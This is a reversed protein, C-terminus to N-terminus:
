KKGLTLARMSEELANTMPCCERACDALRSSCARPVPAPRVKEQVPEIDVVKVVAKGELVRKIKEADWMPPRGSASQSSSSTNSGSFAQWFAGGLRQFLTQSAMAALMAQQPTPANANNNSSSYPLSTSGMKPSAPPSPYAAAASSSSSHKGSLLASLSPSAAKPAAAFYHPRLNSALGTIPAHPQAAAHSQQQQQQAMRTWLQMRYADLMKMTFPHNEAFMDFAAPKAGAGVGFASGAGFGTAGSNLTPNINEQLGPSRARPKVSALPQAFSEPILTTHVPTIGGFSSNANWFSKVRPSSPLDKQLNPTVLPSSTRTAHTPLPGPPPLVPSDARGAGNLLAKKLASIESRLAANESKTSGLETRIADILRDREAIDGELTTIYEKRRVRFNRASIKNRLQRKEKSSMKKYEEPSPRWDDAEDKLDDQDKVVASVPTKKQVGGSQVTGKRGKGKGGVKVPALAALPEEDEEDDDEEREEEDFESTGKSPSPTAMLQPDISFPPSPGNSASTSGSEPSSSNAFAGLFDFPESTMPPALPDAKIYDDELYFNFFDTPQAESITPLFSPPPSPLTSFSPAPSRSSARSGSSSSGQGAQPLTSGGLLEMNFFESMESPNFTFPSQQLPNDVLM